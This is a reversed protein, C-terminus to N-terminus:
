RRQSLVNSIADLIDSAMMSHEGKKERAYEGAAGHLYVALPAAHEPEAGQALLGATIGTLIDGSGATAMGSNGGKHLYLNEGPVSIITRADKMILIVPWKKQFERVRDIPNKKMEEISCQCMRAMEGVHPTLIIPKKVNELHNMNKSIINLADADLVVPKQSPETLLTEVILPANGFVGLGPGAAVVDAWEVAHLLKEQIIERDEGTRYTVLMAEPFIQQLIVRNSEKTFIKVMGAGTLLCAKAAFYAAGCMNTSGAAILVKGFTSKNGIPTRKPLFKLIEEDLLFKHFPGDSYIGIDKILVEGAYSAGPEQFLGTKGYAFTVTKEAEVAVGMVEGTTGHIGSPIDVALVPVQSANIKEILEKYHGEVNRSLGVGFVADVITTYEDPAFNNVVPVGYNECIKWQRAAEETFSKENGALYLDVSYGQLHLIRAVAAGDGGNNGSGCVILTRKLDFKDKLVDVVALSAREMLVLSPIGMNEITHADMEKMRRSSVLEKM